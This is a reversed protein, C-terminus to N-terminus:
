IRRFDSESSMTRRRTAPIDGVAAVQQPRPRQETKGAVGIRDDDGHAVRFEAVKRDRLFSWVPMEVLLSLTLALILNTALVVMYLNFVSRLDCKQGDWLNEYQPALNWNIKLSAAASSADQVPAALPLAAFCGFARGERFSAFIRWESCLVLLISPVQLLLSTYLLKGSSFLMFLPNRLLWSLPSVYFRFSSSSSSFKEPADAIITSDQEHRDRAMPTVGAIVKV